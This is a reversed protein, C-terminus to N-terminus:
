DGIGLKMELATQLLRSYEKNLGEERCAVTFDIDHRDCVEKVFAGESVEKVITKWETETLPKISM